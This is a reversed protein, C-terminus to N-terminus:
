GDAVTFIEFPLAHQSVAPTRKIQVTEALARVLTNGLLRAPHSLVVKIIGEVLGARTEHTLEHGVVIIQKAIPGDDERLARMVGAIGGGYFDMAAALRVVWGAAGKFSNPAKAM